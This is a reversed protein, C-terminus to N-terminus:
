RGPGQPAPPFARQLSAAWRADARLSELEPDQEFMTRPLRLSSDLDPSALLDACAALAECGRETDGLLAHVCAASYWAIPKLRVGSGRALAQASRHAAAAHRLEGLQTYFDALDLTTQVREEADGEATAAVLDTIMGQAYKRTGWQWLLAALGRRLSEPELRANEVIAVIGDLREATPVGKQVDRLPHVLHVRHTTPYWDPTALLWEFLLDTAMPQLALLVDYQGRFTIGSARRRRLLELTAHTVLASVGKSRPEAPAAIAAPLRAALWAIGHPEHDLLVKVTAMLEDRSAHDSALWREGAAAVRQEPPDQATAVALLLLPALSRPLM